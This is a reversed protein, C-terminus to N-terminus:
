YNGPPFPVRGGSAPPQPDYLPSPSPNAFPNLQGYGTPSLVGTPSLASPAVGDEYGSPAASHSDSNMPSRRGPHADFSTTPYLGNSNNNNEHEDYDNVQGYKRRDADDDVSDRGHGHGYLESDPEDIRTSWADKTAADDVQPQFAGRGGGNNNKSGPVVGTKKYKNMMWISIASTLCWLLLLVVGFGVAAKTVKCKSVSGWAWIECDSKDDLDEDDEHDKKGQKVGQGEWVGVAITAAFWLLAFLLDLGLYAYINAFRWARTWMPVMVQYILAPISFFCQRPFIRNAHRVTTLLIDLLSVLAFFFGIQGGHNGSKTLIALALCGAIFTFLAQAAHFAAKSKQFYSQEIRM